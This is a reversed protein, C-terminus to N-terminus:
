GKRINLKYKSNYTGLKIVKIDNLMRLIVQQIKKYTPDFEEKSMKEQKLIEVTIEKITAQKRKNLVWIIRDEWRSEKDYESPIVIEPAFQASDKTQRITLKTMADKVVALELQKNRKELDLKLIEDLIEKERKRLFDLSPNKNNSM